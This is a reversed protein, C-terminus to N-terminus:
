NNKSKATNRKATQTTSHLLMIEREMCVLKKLSRRLSSMCFCHFCLRKVGYWFTGVGRWLFPVNWCAGTSMTGGRCWRIHRDTASPYPCCSWSCSVGFRRHYWFRHYGLRGCRPSSMWGGLTPVPALTCQQRVKREEMHCDCVCCSSSQLINLSKHYKNQLSKTIPM